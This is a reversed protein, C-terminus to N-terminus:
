LLRPALAYLAALAAAYLLVAIPPRAPLRRQWEWVALVSLGFPIFGAYGPLPMEFLHPAQPLVLYEWGTKAPFNIAEWLLGAMISGAVWGAAFPQPTPCTRVAAFPLLLLAPALWMGQNFWFVSNVFPIALLVLGTVVLRPKHRRAFEELARPVCAAGGLMWWCEMVIPVVTAFSTFGFFVQRHLGEISGRYRWQPARLNLAEFLLWFLVSVPLTIAFFRRPEARWLSQGRRRWNWADLILLLGWWVVPYTYDHIAPLVGAMAVAGAGAVVAGTAVQARVSWM